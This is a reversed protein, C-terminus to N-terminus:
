GNKFNLRKAQICEKISPTRLKELNKKLYRNIEEVEKANWSQRARKLMPKKDGSLFTRPIYRHAQRGDTTQRDMRGDIFM